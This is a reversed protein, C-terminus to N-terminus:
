LDLIQGDRAVFAGDFTAQAQQHIADLERDTRLPAHHILAVRAAGAAQALRVAQQWSSHGYGRYRPMEADTYSADYIFLDAKEILALVTPDLTGPEHETDTIMAVARGGCEVRYGVAGGPHNLAGTRITIGDAPALPEGARFDRTRLAACCIDPEVPFWPPRMFEGIMRHTSMRGALHGSWFTVSANRDFIPPFFPLGIIHDYHSHTFFLDFRSLGEAKLAVGAPMLGSGADFILCRDGCRMEICITNGGYAQFEAGSVPLSGRVGWFRVRFGSDTM